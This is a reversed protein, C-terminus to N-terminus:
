LKLLESAGRSMSALLTSCQGSHFRSISLRGKRPPSLVCTSEHRGHMASQSSRPTRPLITSAYSRAQGRGFADSTERKVEHQQPQRKLGALTAM